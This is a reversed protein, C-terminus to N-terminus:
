YISGLFQKTIDQCNQLQKGIKFAWIWDKKEEEEIKGIFLSIGSDKEPAKTACRNSHMNFAVM